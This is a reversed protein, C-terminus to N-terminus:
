TVVAQAVEALAATAARVTATLTAASTAPMATALCQMTGYLVQSM